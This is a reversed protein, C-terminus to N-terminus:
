RVHSRCLDLKRRLFIGDGADLESRNTRLLYSQVDYLSMRLEQSVKDGSDKGSLVEMKAFIFSQSLKSCSPYVYRPQRETTDSIADVTRAVTKDSRRPDVM